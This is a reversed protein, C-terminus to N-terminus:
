LLKLCKEFDIGDNKDYINSFSITKEIFQTATEVADFLENGNLVSALVISSFIDGTGSFSSSNCKEHHIYM